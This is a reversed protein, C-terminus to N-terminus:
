LTLRLEKATAIASETIKEGSLLKAIEYIMESENLEKAIAETRDGQVTKDIYIVKKGKAAIQPSHTIAIIQHKESLKSMQKGVKEAIKGSVGADIEDFVLIPMNRNDAGMRKLALMIRSMEGGSAIKRLPKPTEGKNTSIYFEVNDIGDIFTKYYKGDIELSLEDNKDSEIQEIKNEFEIHNFGLEKLISEIDKKFVKSAKSRKSSLTKAIKGLEIRISGIEAGFNELLNKYSNSESLEQELEIKLKLSDDISGYKRKFNQLEFLRQNIEEIRKPDFIFNQIYDNTFNIIEKVVPITNNIEESYVEFSKDFKVLNQLKKDIQVFQEYLSNEERFLIDGIEKLNSFIAESNELKRLENELIVDEDQLPNVKKIEELHEQKQKQKTEFDIEQKILDNYRKVLEKLKRFHEQYNQLEIFNNAYADLIAIHNEPLLLSQHEYQGHFDVLMEGIKKLNNLPIPTDNVFNRSVNNTTIERRIILEPFVEIELEQLINIIPHDDPLLFIGEIISRKEGQRIFSTSARDGLLISLSDIIISKGAGTEGILINLTPDFEIFLERIIAFNKILLSKLM